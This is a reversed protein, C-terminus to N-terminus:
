QIEYVEVMATGTKTLSASQASDSATVVVTYSGAGLLTVLAADKSASGQLPFAGVNAFASTMAEVGNDAWDDNTAVTVGSSNVIRLVPNPLGDSIGYQALSPGVARVLLVMGSKVIFGAILPSAPTVLGRTSINIMRYSLVTLTAASSTVSSVANTVVVDYSANDTLAATPIVLTASTKGALAVSNKRWQYQLPGSGTAEVAFTATEGTSVRQATPQTSIAPPLLTQAHASSLVAWACAFAIRRLLIPFSM